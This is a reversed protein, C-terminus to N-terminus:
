PETQPLEEYIGSVVEEHIAFQKGTQTKRKKM